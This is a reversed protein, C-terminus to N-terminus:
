LLIRALVAADTSIYWIHFPLRLKGTRLFFLSRNENPVLTRWHKVHALFPLMELLLLSHCRVSQLDSKHSFGRITDILTFLSLIEGIAREHLLFPYIPKTGFPFEQKQLYCHVHIKFQDEPFFNILGATALDRFVNDCHQDPHMQGLSCLHSSNARYTVPFFSFM